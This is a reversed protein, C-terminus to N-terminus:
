HADQTKRFVFLTAATLVGEFVLGARHFDNLDGDLIVGLGRSAFVSGISLIVLLLAGRYHSESRAAWVLFAGMGLQFGGYTARIDTTAAPSLMGFGASETLALPAFLYALGFALTFLGLGLLYYKALKM